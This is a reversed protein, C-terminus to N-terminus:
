RANLVARSSGDVRPADDSLALWPLRAGHHAHHTPKLRHAADLLGVPVFVQGPLYDYTGMVPSGCAGCFARLTGPAASATAPEPTVTVAYADFAALVSVPAGSIRRCDECHCYCVSRPEARARIRTRGCYCRGEIM